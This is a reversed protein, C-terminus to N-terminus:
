SAAGAEGPFPFNAWDPKVLQLEIGGAVLKGGKKLAEDARDLRLM